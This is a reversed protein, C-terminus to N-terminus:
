PLLIVLKFTADFVYLACAIICFLRFNGHIFAYIVDFRVYSYTHLRRQMAFSFQGNGQGASPRSRCVPTHLVFGPLILFFGGDPFYYSWSSLLTLCTYLVLLLVSYGLIEMYLLMFLMLVCMAILTYVGNCQLHSSGM